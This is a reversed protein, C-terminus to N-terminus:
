ATAGAELWLAAVGAQDLAALDVARESALREMAEFRRRYAAAWGRLASEADTNGARAIVVAAALIQALDAELDHAPDTRLRAVATDIRDLAEDLSGPDLGLSAAKRFLKNTYLLSPLGVTIGEVISTTGKEDKKIQEWNRVVDVTEDAVVDGFVHPHRRVLKDHIGRAVDAMTFEGAEQAIVAHFVVQYLLDGLEDELAAYAAADPLGDLAEVVEYSEELLYRTLSGHTQEADWPCGGPDRLRKTLLLLRVLEAAAGSATADVEVFLSTLHDPDVTRDLEVLPVQEVREDALGLRQLVTIPADPDLHELLTLKV